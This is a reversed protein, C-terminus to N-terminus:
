RARARKASRRMAEGCSPTHTDIRDSKSPEIPVSVPVTETNTPVADEATEAVLFHLEVAGFDVGDELARLALTHRSLRPRLGLVVIEGM